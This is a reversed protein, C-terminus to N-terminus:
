IEEFWNIKFWGNQKYIIETQVRYSRQKHSGTTTFWQPMNNRGSAGINQQGQHRVCVSVGLTAPARSNNKKNPQKWPSNGILHTIIWWHNNYKVLWVCTHM